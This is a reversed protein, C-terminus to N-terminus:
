LWRLGNVGTNSVLRDLVRPMDLGCDGAGHDFAEDVVGLDDGDFAVAVLELVAVEAASWWGGLGFLGVSPTWKGDGFRPGYGSVTSM